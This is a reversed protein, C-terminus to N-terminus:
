ATERSQEKAPLSYVDSEQLTGARVQNDLLSFALDYDMGSQMLATIKEKASDTLSWYLGYFIPKTM